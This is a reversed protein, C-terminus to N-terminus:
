SQGDSASLRNRNPQSEAKADVATPPTAQKDRSHQFFLAIPAVIRRRPELVEDDLFDDGTIL